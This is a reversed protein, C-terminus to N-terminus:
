TNSTPIHLHKIYLLDFVKFEMAMHIAEILLIDFQWNPFLKRRKKKEKQTEINKRENSSECCNKNKYVQNSL